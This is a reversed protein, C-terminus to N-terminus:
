TFVDSNWTNCRLQVPGVELSAIAPSAGGIEDGLLLGVNADLPLTASAVHVLNGDVYFRARNLLDDSVGNGGWEVRLRQMDTISVPIGTDYQSFVGGAATTCILNGTSMQFGVFDQLSTVPTSPPKGGFGIIGGHGTPTNSWRVCTQLAIHNGVKVAGFPRFFFQYDGVSSGAGYGGSFALRTFSSSNTISYVNVAAGANGGGSLAKRRWSPHPTFVADQTGSGGIAAGIDSVGPSWIEDVCMVHGSPFGLQDVGFRTHGNATRWREIHGGWQSAKARKKVAFHVHDALVKFAQYISSANLAEGDVPLQLTPGKSPEPATDPVQVATSVGTYTTSM